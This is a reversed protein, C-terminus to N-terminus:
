PIRALDRAAERGLTRNVSWHPEKDAARVAAALADRAAELEGRELFCWGKRYLAYSESPPQALKAATSYWALAATLEGREFLYDAYFVDAEATRRSDPYDKGLRDVYRRAGEGDDVALQLRALASLAGDIRDYRPYATATRYAAIAQSFYSQARRQDDAGVARHTREWQWACLQGVRFWFDPKQPDDDPTIEILRRLKALYHEGRPESGIRPTLLEASFRPGRRAIAAAVGRAPIPVPGTLAIGVLLVAASM